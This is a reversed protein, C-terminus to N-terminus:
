VEKRREKRKNREHYYKVVERTQEDINREDNRIYDCCKMQLHDKYRVAIIGRQCEKNKCYSCVEKKFMKIDEKFEM